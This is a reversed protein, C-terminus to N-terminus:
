LKVSPHHISITSKSPFMPVSALSTLMQLNRRYGFLGAYSAENTEVGRSIVQPVRNQAPNFVFATSHHDVAPM